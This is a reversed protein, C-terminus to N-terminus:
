VEEWFFLVDGFDKDAEQRQYPAIMAEIRGMKGFGNPLAEIARVIRDKEAQYVISDLDFSKNWPINYKATCQESLYTSQRRYKKAAPQAVSFRSSFLFKQSSIKIVDREESLRRRYRLLGAVASGPHASALRYTTAEFSTHFYESLRSVNSLSYRGNVFSRFEELPFVLEAAGLDCLRELETAERSNPNSLSRFRAGKASNPFITHIIEHALTFLVRSRPRNPNFLIMRGSKVPYLVADRQIKRQGEIDMPEIKIGKLSALIKIKEFPDSPLGDFTSLEELMLRAQTKITFRPCILEGTQRALSIIDPDSYRYDSIRM